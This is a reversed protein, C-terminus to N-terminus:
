VGAVVADPILECHIVSARGRAEGDVTVRVPSPSDLQWHDLQRTAIGPHPVHTGTPMRRRAKYWDVTSLDFTIVDFRGDGPHARPTINLDGIFAANMIAVDPRRIAGLVVHAAAVLPEGDLTVAIADVPLLMAAERTLSAATVGLTRALDGGTPRVYAAGGAVTAAIAADDAASVTGPPLSGEDGWARGKEITM